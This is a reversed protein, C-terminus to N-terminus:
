TVPLSFSDPFKESDFQLNARPYKAFHFWPLKHHATSNSLRALDNRLFISRKQLKSFVGCSIQLAAKQCVPHKGWWKWCKSDLPDTHHLPHAYPVAGLPGQFPLQPSNQSTQSFECNELQSVGMSPCLPLYKLVNGALTFFLLKLLLIWDFISLCSNSVPIWPNTSYVLFWDVPIQSASSFQM